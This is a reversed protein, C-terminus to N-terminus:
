KNANLIRLTQSLSYLHSITNIFHIKKIKKEIYYYMNIFIFTCFYSHIKCAYYTETDPNKESLKTLNLYNLIPLIAIPIYIKYAYM